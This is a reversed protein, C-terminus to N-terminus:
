FKPVALLNPWMHQGRRNMSMITIIGHMFYPRNFRSSNLHVHRVRTAGVELHFPSPLTKRGEKRFTLSEGMREAQKLKSPPPLCLHREDKAGEKSCALGPRMRASKPRRVLCIEPM